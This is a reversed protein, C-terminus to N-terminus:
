PRNKKLERRKKFEEFMKKRFDNEAKKLLMIKKAPLVTMLNQLYEKKLKYRQEEFTIMDELLVKAESESMGENIQDRKERATRHLKDDKAEYANYIPWLKQAETKSLNLQETIFAIKLAEIKEKHEDKQSFATFSVAIFLLTFLAKKM